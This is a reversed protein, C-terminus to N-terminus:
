PVRRYVAPIIIMIIIVCSCYMNNHCSLGAIVPGVPHRRFCLSSGAHMSGQGQWGMPWYRDPLLRVQGGWKPLGMIVSQFCCKCYFSCRNQLLYQSLLISVKISLTVALKREVPASSLLNWQEPSSKVVHTCSSSPVQFPKTLCSDRTTQYHSVGLERWCTM